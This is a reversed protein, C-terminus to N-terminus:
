KLVGPTNYGTLNDMVNGLVSDSGMSAGGLNSIAKSQKEAMEAQQAQQIQKAREQRIAAVKEDPVIMKPDVGLMDGYAEVYYDIDVKDMV